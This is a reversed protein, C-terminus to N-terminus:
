QVARAVAAKLEALIHPRMAAAPGRLFRMAAIVNPRRFAYASIHHGRRMHASVNTRRAGYELAGFAAATRQARGTPIIRVRGRIFNPREDVFAHTRSRMYGTRVPERALVQALLSRTINSIVPRLEQRLREPLQELHLRVTNDSATITFRPSIMRHVRPSLPQASWRHGTSHRGIRAARRDLVRATGGASETARLMPDRGRGAVEVVCLQIVAQQVDDPIVPWGGTYAAVISTWQQTDGVRWVLGALQDLAYGEADLAVGDISVILDEVPAQALILPEGGNGRFTDRYDQQAFYPQLLARGAQIDPRHGTLWTTPPITPILQLQERVDALTVLKREAAPTVVTTFLPTM